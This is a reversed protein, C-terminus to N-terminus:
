TSDNSAAGQHKSHHGVLANASTQDWKLDPLIIFGTSPNDDRFLIRDAENKGDLINFVRSILRDELVMRSPPWSAESVM